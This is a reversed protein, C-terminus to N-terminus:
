VVVASVFIVAVSMAGVVILVGSGIMAIVVLWLVVAVLVVEFWHMVHWLVCCAFVLQLLLLVRRFRLVCSLKVVLVNRLIRRCRAVIVVMMM